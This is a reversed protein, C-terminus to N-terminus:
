DMEGGGPRNAPLKAATMLQIQVSGQYWEREPRSGGTKYIRLNLLRISRSFLSSTMVIRFFLM